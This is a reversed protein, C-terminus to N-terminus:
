CLDNWRKFEISLTEADLVSCNQFVREAFGGAGRILLLSQAMDAIISAIRFEGNSRAAMVMEPMTPRLAMVRSMMDSVM